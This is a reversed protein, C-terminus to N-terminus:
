REGVLYTSYLFVERLFGITFVGCYRQQLSFRRNHLPNAMEGISHFIRQMRGNSENTEVTYITLTMLIQRVYSLRVDHGYYYYIQQSVEATRDRPWLWM